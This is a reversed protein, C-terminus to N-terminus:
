KFQKWLERLSDVGREDFCMNDPNQLESKIEEIKAELALIEAYDVAAQEDDKRLAEEKKRADEKLFGIIDNQVQIEVAHKGANYIKTTYWTFTALGGMILGIIM